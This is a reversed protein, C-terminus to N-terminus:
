IALSHLCKRETPAENPFSRPVFAIPVMFFATSPKTNDSQQMQYPFFLQFAFKVLSAPELFVTMKSASELAYPM